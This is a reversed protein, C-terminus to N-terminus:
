ISPAATLCNLACKVRFLYYTQIIFKSNYIFLGPKAPAKKNAPQKVYHKICEEHVIYAKDSAATRIIMGSTEVSMWSAEVSMGSAEVSMESAEVSM